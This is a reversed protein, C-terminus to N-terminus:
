PFAVATQLFGVNAEITDCALTSCGGTPGDFNYHQYGAYVDIGNSIEYGITGQWADGNQTLNRTVGADLFAPLQENVNAYNVGFQWPGTEYTAGASWIQTDANPLVCGALVGCGTSNVPSVNDDRLPGGGAINTHRWSGGFKLGDYTVQAGAGYEQVDDPSFAKSAFLAPGGGALPIAAIPLVIAASTRENSGTVYGAYVGFDFGGLSKQYSLNGELINSQRDFKNHGDFIDGVGRTLTPTYSVDLEAGMLRPSAYMIKFAEGSANLDTRMHAGNPTFPTFSDQLPDQLIYHRPDDVRNAESVVPAFIASQEAAGYDDGISLRGFAHQAYIFFKDLYKPAGRIMDDSFRAESSEFRLQGRVGLEVGDDLIVKARGNVHADAAFGFDPVDSGPAQDQNLIYGSFNVYGGYDYGFEEADAALPLWTLVALAAGGGLLLQRMERM